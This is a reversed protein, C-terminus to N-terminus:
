ESLKSEQNENATDSVEEKTEEMKEEMDVNCTSCVEKEESEYGCKKCEYTM